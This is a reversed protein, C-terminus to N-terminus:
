PLPGYLFVVPRGNEGGTDWYSGATGPVRAIQANQYGATGAPPYVVPANIWSSGTWHAQFGMWVGGHGDPVIGYTNAEVIAPPNLQRWTHGNWYLAHTTQGDTGTWGIWIQGASGVGVGPQLTTQPQPMDPAPVWRGGSWHFAVLTGHASGNGEAWNKGDVGVVWPGTAATGALGTVTTGVPYSQWRSGNWHMMETKCDATKPTFTCGSSGGAAVGWVSAPGLVDLDYLYSHQPVSISHWHAGDFRFLKQDTSGYLKYSGLVYVDGPSTAAVQSYVYDSAGPIATAGWRQGDWRLIYPRLHTSGQNGVVWADTRSVAAVSTLGGNVPLWSQFRWETTSSAPVAPAAGDAARPAATATSLPVLAVMAGATVTGIASVLARRLGSPTGTM